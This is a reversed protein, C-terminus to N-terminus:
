HCSLGFAKLWTVLHLGLRAVKGIVDTLDNLHALPDDYHLVFDKTSSHGDFM